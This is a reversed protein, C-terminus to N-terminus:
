PRLAVGLRAGIALLTESEEVTFEHPTPQAVGLAGHLEGDVLLPVAISGEVETERAAPRAVGSEDTQLNCLQVPARREAALGAMGKGVPIVEVRDLIGEPVGIQAVLHLHGTSSDLRHLTGVTGEFASLVALLVDGYEAGNTLMRDVLELINSPAPVSM